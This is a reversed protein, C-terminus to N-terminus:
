QRYTVVTGVAVRICILDHLVIADSAGDAGKTILQFRGSGAEYRHFRKYWVRRLRDHDVGPQAKRVAVEQGREACDQIRRVHPAHRSGGPGPGCRPTTRAARPREARPTM